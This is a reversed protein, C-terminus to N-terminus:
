RAPREGDPPCEEVDPEAAPRVFAEVKRAVPFESRSDDELAGLDM